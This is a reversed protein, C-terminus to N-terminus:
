SKIFHLMTWQSNVVKEVLNLGLSVASQLLEPVDTEFFGSLVLNGNKELSQFYIPLDKLLVNKNINALITHFLKGVLIEANGKHVLANNVNNKQLNEISNECSWDDIDIATIPNAGMMSALIALVGTGCGMDLLSTNKVNLKMLKQIMLQTTNHHGTGFSMKPEIIIDYKFDKKAKHFPARIYCKEQKDSLGIDVEIPQFSSEWEKNWNQQKIIKTSYNIKFSDSYKSFISKVTNEAYEEEKIFASFGKESDVFSEFSIESLEAILVDSGLEKPEVSIILEIYNM